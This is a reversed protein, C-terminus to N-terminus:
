RREPSKKKKKCVETQSRPMDSGTIYKCECADNNSPIIVRIKWMLFQPVALNHDLTAMLYPAWVQKRKRLVSYIVM